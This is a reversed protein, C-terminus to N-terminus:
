GPHLDFTLVAQDKTDLCQRVMAGLEAGEVILKVGPLLGRRSRRAAVCVADVTDDDADRFVLRDAFRLLGRDAAVVDDTQPRVEGDLHWTLRETAVIADYGAARLQHRLADTAEPEGHNLFVRGPKAEAADLWAQLEGRDAHASFGGIEDVECAVEVDRGFVRVTPERAVLHAGRTGPAQFGVFLLTNKPNGVRQVLHHLVRGGTLMGSASLLVFPKTQRNLAISEEASGTFQVDRTMADLDSPTLRLDDPHALFAATARTAMPSDVVVPLDPIRGAEKLRHLSWLLGQARGVAFTPVLVMGGREATRNIVEALRTERDISPHDRDGYTSEMIVTDVAPPPEAAPVVRDDPRGLDGSFLVRHTASALLVSAAGLIHGAQRFTLELAGVPHPQHYPVTVLSQLAAIAEAETYLPRAPEHKTQGKRNRHSAEEEQLRGADPWLVALLAATGPTCYVPGRFGQAVLAPVLGSHDLHGHTLIVADLPEVQLREWNRLRHEKFGQFLGCDVLVRTRGETVLTKSGTVVGAAGLFRLHL